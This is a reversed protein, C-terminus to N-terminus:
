FDPPHTIGGISIKGQKIELTELEIYSGGDDPKIMSDPLDVIAVTEAGENKWKLELGSKRAQETLQDAIAAIPVPIM